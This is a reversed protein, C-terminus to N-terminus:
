RRRPAPKNALNYLTAVVRDVEDIVQLAPTESIYGFALAMNLGTFTERGEGMADDFRNSSKAGRRHQAEGANMCTRVWARRTQSALEKDHQEIQKCLMNILRGIRIIDDIIRLAM